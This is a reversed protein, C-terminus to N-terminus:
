KDPSSVYAFERWPINITSISSKVAESDHVEYIPHPTIRQNLVNMLNHPELLATGLIAASGIDAAKFLTPKNEFKWTRPKGESLFSFAVALLHLYTTFENSKQSFFLTRAPDKQLVLKYTGKVMILAFTPTWTKGGPTQAIFNHLAKLSKDARTQCVRLAVKDHASLKEYNTIFPSLKQTKANLINLYVGDIKKNFGHTGSDPSEPIYTSAELLAKPLVTLDKLLTMRPTGHTLTPRM